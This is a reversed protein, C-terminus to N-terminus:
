QNVRKKDKSYYKKFEREFIEWEINDALIVLEDQSDLMDMLNGYFINKSNNKKIKGIM